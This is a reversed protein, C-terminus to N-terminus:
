LGAKGNKPVPGSMRFDGVPECILVDREDKEFRCEQQLITKFKARARHLRVKVNELSIGLAQAIEKQSFGMVEYLWLVNRYTEPLHTMQQQVCVSMQHKQLTKEVAPRKIDAYEQKLGQKEQNSANWRFYDLCINKAITVLWPGIRDLDKLADIRKFARLFTEQTLDQALWDDKVKSHIVKKVREYHTDYIHYFDIHNKATAM